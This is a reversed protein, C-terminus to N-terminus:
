GQRESQVNQADPQINELNTADVSYGEKLTVVAKKRLGGKIIHKGARRRKGQMSITAVKEVEVNFLKRLAEKIMPKNAKPHVEVTFQNNDRLQYAKETLIPGKIIDYIRLAM